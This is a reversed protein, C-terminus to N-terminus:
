LTVEVLDVTMKTIVLKFHGVKSDPVGMQQAMSLAVKRYQQAMRRISDKNMEACQIAEEMTKHGNCFDYHPHPDVSAVPFWVIGDPEWISTYIVNFFSTSAISKRMEDEIAQRAAGKDEPEAM